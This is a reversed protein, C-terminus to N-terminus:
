GYLRERIKERAKDTTSEFLLIEELKGVIEDMDEPDTDTLQCVMYLITTLRDYHVWGDKTQEGDKKFVREMGHGQVEKILDELTIM